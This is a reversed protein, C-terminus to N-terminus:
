NWYINQMICEKHNELYFKTFLSYKIEKKGIYIGSKEWQVIVVELLINSLHKSLSMLAKNGNKPFFVNFFEDKLPINTAHKEYNSNILWVTFTEM